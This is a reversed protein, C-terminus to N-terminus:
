PLFKIIWWDKWSIKQNAAVMFEFLDYFYFDFQDIGSKEFDAMKWFALEDEKIFSM